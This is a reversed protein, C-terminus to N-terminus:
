KKIDLRKKKKLSNFYWAFTGLGLFPLPGPVANVPVGSSLLFEGTSYQQQLPASNPAGSYDTGYLGFRTVQDLFLSGASNGNALTFDTGSAVNWDLATFSTTTTADGGGSPTFTLSASQIWAPLGFIFNGTTRNEQGDFQSEDIVIFGSLSGQAPTSQDTYTLTVSYINAYAGQVSLALISPILFKASSLKM